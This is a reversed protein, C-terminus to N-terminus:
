SKTEKFLAMFAYAMGATCILNKIMDLTIRLFTLLSELIPNNGGEEIMSGLVGGMVQLIVISPVFCVFWLGIMQFTVRLPKVREIFSSPSINVSLPIYFWVFRFLLVTSVMMVVGAIAVAPDAEEPNMDLPIFSMFFSFYGAMLFNILIFCVSGSLIGRARESIKKLDVKDNGSPKFPWRHGLMVTRAWHALLWGEAFYAPLMILSMRIITNNDSVFIDSLTFCIYKILLPIIIMPLLYAREDWTKKYALGAATIIDISAM